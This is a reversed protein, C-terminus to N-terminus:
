GSRGLDRPHGVVGARKQDDVAGLGAGLSSSSMASSPRRSRRAEGAVLDVARGPDAREEAPALQELLHRGNMPPPEIIRLTELSSIM